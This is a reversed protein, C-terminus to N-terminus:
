CSMSSSEWEGGTAYSSLYNEKKFADQEDESLKSLNPIYSGGMGYAPKFSFTLTHEDAYTTAEKLADMAAKVLKSLEAYESQKNSM